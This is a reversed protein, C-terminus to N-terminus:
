FYQLSLYFIYPCTMFINCDGTGGFVERWAWRGYVSSRDPQAKAMPANCTASHAAPKKQTTPPEIVSPRPNLLTKLCQGAQERHLHRPVRHHAIVQMDDHPHM